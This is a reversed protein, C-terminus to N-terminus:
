ELTHELLEIFEHHDYTGVFRKVINGDRDILFGVPTFRVNDFAKAISGDTDRVVTFPLKNADVYHRVYNDPDYSMAVAIINFGKDHYNEYEKIHSPMQAICTTCSTAWFKVYTVKGKLDATTFTNGNLDHFTVNPAQSHSCAWLTFCILIVTLLRKMM